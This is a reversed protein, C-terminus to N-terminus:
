SLISSPVIYYREPIDDHAESFLVEFTSIGITDKLIDRFPTDALSKRPLGMLSQKQWGDLGSVCICPICFGDEAMSAEYDVFSIAFFAEKLKDQSIHNKATSIVANLVACAVSFLVANYDELSIESKLVELQQYRDIIPIEEVDDYPFNLVDDVIKFVDKLINM